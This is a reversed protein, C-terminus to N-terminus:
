AGFHVYAAWLSPLRPYTHRIQQVANHLATASRATDLTGDPGALQTYFATALQGATADNIEWLTAIVQPFGLLQFASGLHLAEDAIGDLTGSATRCASLYALQAHKLSLPALEAVTLPETQHDHLLLRSESPDDPHNLGHCAFHAITTDALRTLVAQRTPTRGDDTHPRETAAPEPQQLEICDPLFDRVAAAEDPVHPLRGDDPLGPTTPMTVLLPRTGATPRPRTRRAHGLSRVTPSYSSIARDIVTRGPPGDPDAHHGAAHLPLLGLPGGPVWWMRPPTAGAAPPSTLGLADLVPGALNEWLWRLGELILKQGLDRDRWPRNPDDVIALARHFLVARLTVAEPTCAPLPVITIGRDTLLLADSRRSSVNLVAIPGPLAEALLAREDPSRGFTDFDDRTRIEALLADFRAALKLRRDTTTDEGPASRVRDPDALRQEALDQDLHEKLEVFERALEPHEKGLDALDTRTELLQGQRIARGAELIRLARTARQQETGSTADLVAAAADSGLQSAYEAVAQQHDHRALRRSALAPLLLTAAELLEAALDPHGDAASAALRLAQIRISPLATRSAAAETLHILACRRAGRGGHQRHRALYTLALNLLYTSHSAHGAPTDRVAARGVALAEDLDDPTQRVLARTRLLGGLNSQHMPRFVYDDTGLSVAERLAGIAEDLEEPRRTATYRSRLVIGLNSLLVSRDPRGVPTLRVAERAAEAAADVDEPRGLRAHRDMLATGLSSLYGPLEPHLRNTADVATELRSVAEDLDAATRNLKFRDVLATALVKLHRAREPYSPPAARLVERHTEIAEDLDRPDGSREFRDQLAMGLNSLAARRHPGASHLRLVVARNFAVNDLSGASAMHAARIGQAASLNVLHEAHSPHDQPCAEVARRAADAAEDLTEPLGRQHFDVHLAVALNALRDALRPHDPPLVRVARRAFTVAATLDDTRGDSKFKDLLTNALNSFAASSDPHGPSLAHVAKWGETLASRLDEPRHDRDYRARHARSLNAAFAVRLDPADRDGADAAAQAAEVARDLDEPQEIYDHRTFLAESLLLLHYARNPDSTPRRLSHRLTDIAETLDETRHTRDFRARLALALNERLEPHDPHNDPALRLATRSVEVTRDQDQGAPSMGDAITLACSYRSLAVPYHDDDEPLARLIREWLDVAAEAAQPDGDARSRDVLQMAHVGARIAVPPRLARPIQDLDTRPDVFCVTFWTVAQELDARDAGPPLHEFRAHHFGAVLLRAAPFHWGTGILEGLKLLEALAAPETVPRPDRTEVYQQLRALLGRYLHESEADVSGGSEVDIM